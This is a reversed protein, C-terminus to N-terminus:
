ELMDSTFMFNQNQPSALIYDLLCTLTIILEGVFGGIVIIGDSTALNDRVDYIKMATNYEKMEATQIVDKLLQEKLDTLRKRERLAARKEKRLRKEEEAELKAQLEAKRKEERKKLEKQIAQKHGKAFSQMSENLMQDLQVQTSKHMNIDSQIQKYLMPVYTLGVSLESPKRLTGIDIMMKLTDKKFSKLFDKAFTRAIRKKELAISFNKTTRSQLNRRDIEDNKRSRAEELRQTEMLEAEKLQLFRVKHEKLLRAEYEEIVEIRAHEIAKGVLVQLVPEVENEYDFLDRDGDFIQTAKNQGKENPIFTAEPAKDIFYDPELDFENIMNQNDSLEEWVNQSQIQYMQM